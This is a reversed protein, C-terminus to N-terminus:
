NYKVKLEKHKLTNVILCKTVINDKDVYVIFCIYFFSM